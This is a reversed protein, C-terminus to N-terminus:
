GRLFTDYALKCILCTLMLLFLRRVFHAGKRMALRAGVISGAINCVAMPIAFAYLVKGAPVFFILAAINTALNVLKACASAQLFDFAFVRVFLFMLFSGTGPGFLGDYFGIAGGITIALFHDRPAIVREDRATGFDKKVFTYGAMVILLALVVPRMVTQPIANVTAAGLFSMAFAGFAAPLVLRWPVSVRGIYSKAAFATGCAGAFKNTGFLAAPSYGPLFNFLAPIQILGGGGVAADFLGAFFAFFCLLLLM